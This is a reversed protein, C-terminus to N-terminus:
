AFSFKEFKKLIKSFNLPFGYENFEIFFIILSISLVARCFSNTKILALYLSFIVLSFLISILINKSSDSFNKTSLILIKPFKIVSSFTILFTSKTSSPSGKLLIKNLLDIFSILDFPIKLDTLELIKSELKFSLLLIILM